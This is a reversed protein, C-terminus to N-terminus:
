SAQIMRFNSPHCHGTQGSEAMDAIIKLGRAVDRMQYPKFMVADGVFRALDQDQNGTSFLIAIRSLSRLRDAVETGLQGDSLHLDIVAFDPPVENVLAVAEDINRAIGTVRFGDGELHDELLGAISLDDEVILVNM